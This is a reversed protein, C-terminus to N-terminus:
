PGPRGRGNFAVDIHYLFEGMPRLQQQCLGVLTISYAFLSHTM